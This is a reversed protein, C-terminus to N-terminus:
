SLNFGVEMADIQAATYPQNTAPNNVIIRPSNTFNVRSPVIASGMSTETGNIVQIPSAGTVVTGADLINPNLQIANISKVDNSGSGLSPFHFTQKTGLGSGSSYNADSFPTENVAGFNTGTLPTWNNLGGNADPVLRQVRMQRPNSPFASFGVNDATWLVLDSFKFAAHQNIAGIHFYSITLGSGINGFTHNLIDGNPYIVRTTVARTTANVLIDIHFWNVLSYVAQWNNFVSAPYVFTSALTSQFSLFNMWSGGPHQAAFNNFFTNCTQGTSFSGGTRQIDILFTLVQGNTFVIYAFSAWGTSNASQAGSLNFSMGLTPNSWTRTCLGNFASKGSGGGQFQLHSAGFLSGTRHHINGGQSTYGFRSMPLLASQGDTNGYRSLSDIYILSM